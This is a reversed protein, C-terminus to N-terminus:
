SNQITFNYIYDTYPLTGSVKLINSKSGGFVTVDALETGWFSINGLGTGGFYDAELLGTRSKSDGSDDLGLTSSL